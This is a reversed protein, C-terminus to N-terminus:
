AGSVWSYVLDGDAERVAQLTYTGAGAPPAPIALAAGAPAGSEDVFSVLGVAQEGIATDTSGQVARVKRIRQEGM